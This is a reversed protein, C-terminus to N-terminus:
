FILGQLYIHAVPIIVALLFLALNFVAKFAMSKNREFFFFATISILAIALTYLIFINNLTLSMKEVGNTNKFNVPNPGTVPKINKDSTISETTTAGETQGFAVQVPQVIVPTPLPIPNPTNNVVAVQSSPRGFMQVVLIGQRGNIKVGKVAVGIDQYKNNLINAKHSPSNLWAQVTDQPTFFGIALNEGAVSYQYHVNKMWYWPNIGSPSVHAFYENQAMDKLKQEAALDLRSDAKLLPLKNTARAENTIKVVDRSNFAPLSELLIASQFLTHPLVLKIILFFLFNWFIIRAGLPHLHLKLFKLM